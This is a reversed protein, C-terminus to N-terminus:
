RAISPAQSVSAGPALSSAASFGDIKRVGENLDTKADVKPEVKSALRLGELIQADLDRLKDNLAMRSEEAKKEATAADSREKHLRELSSIWGGMQRRLTAVEDTLKSRERTLDNVRGQLSTIRPNLEARVAKDKAREADNKEQLARAADNSRGAKEKELDLTLHDRREQAERTAEIAGEVKSRATDREKVLRPYDDYTALLEQIGVPKNAIRPAAPM